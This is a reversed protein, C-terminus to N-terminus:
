GLFGIGWGRRMKRAFCTCREGLQEVRVLRVARAVDDGHYRGESRQRQREVADGRASSTHKICFAVSDEFRVPLGEYAVEVQGKGAHTM